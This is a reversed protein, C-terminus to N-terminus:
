SEGSTPVATAAGVAFKILGGGDCGIDGGGGGGGHGEGGGGPGRVGCGTAGEGRWDGAAGGGGACGGLVTSLLTASSFARNARPGSLADVESHGISASAPM